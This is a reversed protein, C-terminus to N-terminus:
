NYTVGDWANDDLDITRCIQFGLNIKSYDGSINVIGNPRLIVNNSQSVQSDPVKILYTESTSGYRVVLSFTTKNVNQTPLLFVSFNVNGSTPTLKQLVRSQNDGPVQVSTAITDNVQVVKVLNGATLTMSKVFSPVNTVSVTLGSVFRRLQGSLSITSADSPTFATGSLIGNVTATCLCTYFEPVVTPSKPALQFNALTTPTPQSALEVLNAVTNQNYYDYDTQKYGIVLIKYTFSKLLKLTLSQTPFSSVDWQHAFNWAPVYNDARDDPLAANLKQFPLVLIRNVSYAPARTSFASSFLIESGVSLDLQALDSEPQELDESRSCASLFMLVIGLSLVYQIGSKM